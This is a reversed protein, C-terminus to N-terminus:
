SGSQGCIFVDQSLELVLTLHGLVQWCHKPIKKIQSSKKYTHKFKIIVHVHDFKKWLFNPFSM